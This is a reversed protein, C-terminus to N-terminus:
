WGRGPGCPPAPSSRVAGGVAFPSDGGLSVGGIAKTMATKAGARLFAPLRDMEILADDVKWLLPMADLSEVRTVGPVRGPGLERALEAVRDMGGASILAPDDYAVFVFNDDGFAASARNYAAIDPDDDGFFSRISQEYGVRRGAALLALLGLAVVAFSVWRYRLLLAIMDGASRKGDIRVGARDRVPAAVGPGAAAGRNYTGRGPKDVRGTM